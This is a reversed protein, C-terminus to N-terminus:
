GTPPHTLSSTLPRYVRAKAGASEKLIREAIRKASVFSADSLWGEPGVWDGALYLHKIPQVEVDPRGALGKSASTTLANAVIMRPLFRRVIVEDRWGPQVRDMLEELEREDAKPDSSEPLYKAVHILAGDAPALKAAASHVSYYLPLDIGLAFLREPRPLRRLGLDLCAAKVPKSTEVWRHLSLDQDTGILRSATGPDVALVVASAEVFRGDALRVGRAIGDGEVSAVKAGTVFQVGAVEGTSQLRKVLSGWGQDLYLVNAKLTLQIQTLAVDASQHEPDNAYTTLRVLAKLYQRVAGDQVLDDVWHSVSRQALERPTLRQISALLRM